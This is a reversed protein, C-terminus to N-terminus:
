FKRNLLENYIKDLDDPDLVAILDDYTIDYTEIVATNIELEKNILEDIENISNNESVLEVPVLGDDLDELLEIKQSDNLSETFEPLGTSVPKNVFIYNAVMISFIVFVSIALTYGLNFKIKHARTIQLNQRFEPIISNLYLDDLKVKKLGDTENKMRLYKEFEKQLDSSDKLKEEFASKEEANLENDIYKIIRETNDM